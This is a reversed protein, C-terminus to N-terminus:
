RKISRVFLEHTEDQLHEVECTLGNSRVPCIAAPQVLADPVPGPISRALYVYEHRAKRQGHDAARIRADTEGARGAGSRSRITDDARLGVVHGEM